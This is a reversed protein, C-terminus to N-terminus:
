CTKYKDRSFYTSVALSYLCIIIFGLAQPQLLEKSAGVQLHDCRQQHALRDCLLHQHRSHGRVRRLYLYLAVRRVSAGPLHLMLSCVIGFEFFCIIPKADVMQDSNSSSAQLPFAQNSLFPRPFSTQRIPVSTARRSPSPSCARYMRALLGQRQQPCPNNYAVTIM